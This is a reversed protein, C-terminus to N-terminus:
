AVRERRKRSREPSILWALKGHKVGEAKLAKVRESSCESPTGAQAIIAQVQQATLGSNTSEVDITVAWIGRPNQAKAKLKMTVADPGVIRGLAEMLDNARETANVKAVTPAKGTTM